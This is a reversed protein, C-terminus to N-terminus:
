QESRRGLLAEPEGGIVRLGERIGSVPAGALMGLGRGVKGMAVDLDDGALSYIGDMFQAIGPIASDPMSPSKEGTIARKLIRTVDEGILPISDTAQSFAWFAYRKAKEEPPEDDRPPRTIMAQLLTGSIIYAVAIGIAQKLQHAKVAAPLDYWINQYVVNLAQTFQFIAQVYPNKDRYVPALDVGRSTPQTMLIIDDAKEMAKQHDGKFEELAKNYIARWGIAVSCRDAWELGAMGLAEVNKAIKGLKTKANANKLAENILSFQRNKLVISLEETEKIYKAPNAMMKTAEVFLGAGAYPLAPWPSTVVQKLVSSVRFGLYAAGLNGRLSRVAEDQWKRVRMEGPNKIEAVYEKIYDVGRSGFVGKIQEQVTKDLYVADLEKGYQAYAIYHEQYEISKLWTGLLDMNTEGQNWPRITIRDKTFGNKPPRRTGPTRDLVDGAVYADIPENTVSKRLIPFYHEIVLMAQNTVDAVVQALRPATEQGDKEFVDDLLALDSDDLKAEIAAYIANFKLEAKAEIEQYAVAEGDAGSRAIERYKKKEDESFFNGYLLAQRSNEDRFGLALAMLDSKRLIVDSDNKGAQPITVLEEYWDKPDHGTSAIADLIAKQRETRKKMEARYLRNMKHWGFETNPGDVGGDMERLFRRANVFAYAFSFTKDKISDMLSTSYDPGEAKKYHKNARLREEIAVRKAENEQSREFEIQIQVERGVKKLTTIKQHAEEWMSLPIERRSTTTFKALWEPSVIQAVAPNTIANQVMREMQDNQADALLIDDGAEIAAEERASLKKGYNQQIINQIATIAKKYEINASDSPVKLTQEIVKKRYARLERLVKREADREAYEDQLKTREELKALYTQLDQSTKYDAAAALKPQLERMKAAAESRAKITRTDPARGAAHERDILEQARDKRRKAEEYQRNIEMWDRANVLKQRIRERRAELQKRQNETAAPVTGHEDLHTTIRKLTRNIQDETKKLAMRQEAITRVNADLSAEQEKIESELAKIKAKAAKRENEVKVIYEKTESDLSIDGTRIARSIREDRVKAARERRQSISMTAEFESDKIDAYKEKTATTAVGELGKDGMLKAYIGAYEEPNRAVVGYVSRMFALSTVRNKAGIALAAAVVPGEISSRIKAAEDRAAQWAEVEEQDSFRDLQTNEEQLVQDYIARMFTRLGAFNDSKLSVLWSELSKPAEKEPSTLADYQEKYWALKKEQPLDPIGWKEQDIFPAEFFEVIEDFSMGQDIAQKMEQVYGPKEPNEGQYLTRKRIEVASDEFMVYNWGKEGRGGSLFAVPYQIGDFGARYLFDSAAQPGAGQGIEDDFRDFWNFDNLTESLARYVDAGNITEGDDLLHHITNELMTGLDNEDDETKENDFMSSARRLAAVQDSYLPQDWRILTNRLPADFDFEEKKDSAYSPVLRVTGKGDEGFLFKRLAKYGAEAPHGRNAALLLGLAEKVIATTKQEAKQIKKQDTEDSDIIPLAYKKSKLLKDEYLWKRAWMPLAPANKVQPAMSADVLGALNKDILTGNVGELVATGDRLAETGLTVKKDGPSPSWRTNGNSPLLSTVGARKLYKKFAPEDDNFMEEKLYKYLGEGTNEYEMEELGTEAVNEIFGGMFQLIFKEEEDDGIEGKWFDWLDGAGLESEFKDRTWGEDIWRQYEKRLKEIDSDQVPKNWGEPQKTSKIEGPNDGRLSLDVNYIFRGGVFAIAGEDEASAIMDALAEVYALKTAATQDFGAEYKYKETTDQIAKDVAPLIIERHKQRKQEIHPADENFDAEDSSLMPVAMGLESIRRKVANILERTAEQVVPLNKGTFTGEDLDGVSELTEALFDVRGPNIDALMTRLLGEDGLRDAYQGKAVKMSETFYLGYGYIQQGEGTGVWATSFKEFGHGTGHKANRTEGQNLIDNPKMHRKIVIRRKTINQDAAGPSRPGDGAQPNSPAITPSGLPQRGRAKESEPLFATVLWPKRQGDQELDIIARYGNWTIWRRTPKSNRGYDPGLLGKTLINELNAIVSDTDEHVYLIHALGFGDHYNHKESGTYGWHITLPGIYPVNVANDYIGKQFKLAAQLVTGFKFKADIRDETWGESKRQDKDPTGSFLYQGHGVSTQMEETVPLAHVTASQKGGEEPNTTDITAETVQAGWKKGYKNAFDVLIKDYFGQMGEGGVKLDVDELYTYGNEQRGVGGIVKQTMEKGIMGEMSAPSVSDDRYVEEGNKGWVALRYLDEGRKVYGISDIQKSLDYREAQQDGTTWAVADYGGDAAMRLIRKFVFEHWTKSFPADPVRKAEDMTAPVQNGFPSTITKMESAYGYKRGDQHWDSQIEEVFLVRKGDATTRDNIRTHALVNPEDWHGSRYANKALERFIGPNTVNWGTGYTEEMAALREEQTKFSVWQRSEGDIEQRLKLMAMEAALRPNAYVARPYSDIVEGNRLVATEGNEDQGIEWNGFDGKTLMLYEIESPLTFLIERYNQGGPLVYRTFQPENANEPYMKEELAQWEAQEEPTLNQKVSLRDHRKREKETITSQIDQRRVEQIELKNAELFAKVEQPTKKEDTDLFEDLGTWKIEDGKVGAAQLTKLIQRGPMAGQIKEAVVDESKYKWVPPEPRFNTRELGTMEEQEGQYLIRADNPDWTGRNNTSKIQEPNFVVYSTGQLNSSDVSDDVNRIIMGDHGNAKAEKALKTLRIAEGPDGRFDVEMPNKLSLYAEVLDGPEDTDIVEGYERPYRYQEAVDPNDTFFVAGPVELANRPDLREVGISQSGHYVAKPKGDADRVKSKGFWRRFEPSQTKDPNEKWTKDMVWGAAKKTWGTAQKIDERSYGEGEMEKARELRSSAGQHYEKVEGQFIMLDNLNPTNPEDKDASLAPAKADVRPLIDKKVKETEASTEQSYKSLAEEPIGANYEQTEQDGLLKDFYGQIEPSLDVRAKKLGNYLDLVFQALKALIGEKGEPAKKFALYDELAYAVAEYYTRNEYKYEETWGEFDADWNGNQIGFAGEIEKLFAAVKENQRNAQAFWVVAHTMEHMLTSPNANPGIEIVTRLGNEFKKRYARGYSNETDTEYSGVVFPALSDRALDAPDMGFRQAFRQFVYTGAKIDEASWGPRQEQIVKTVRDMTAAEDIESYPRYLQLGAEVGRPNTRVMYDKLAQEGPTAPTWQIDWGAYNQAVKRITARAIAPNDVNDMGLITVTGASEGEGPEIDYTVANLLNGKADGAKMTYREGQIQETEQFRTGSPLPANAMSEFKETQAATMEVPSVPTPKVITKAEVSAKKAEQTGKLFLRMGGPIVGLGATGLFAGVYTDVLRKGVEKATTPTLSTGDLDNTLKKAKEEAVVAAAEQLAEQLANSNVDALWPGARGVTDGIFKLFHRQYIGQTTIKEATDVALDKAKKTVARQAAQTMGPIGKFFTDFEIAELVGAVTGYANAWQWAVKPNIREGTQPDTYSLMQYFQSGREMDRSSLATSLMGGLRSGIDTSIATSAITAGISTLGLLPISIQPFLAAAITPLVAGVAGGALRGAMNNDLGAVISPIFEFTRKLLEVPLARKIEEPLPMATRYQEIQQWLPDAEFNYDPGKKWLENANKAISTGIVAAKLTLQLSELWDKPQMSRRYLEQTIGEYNDYAQDVPIGYMQSALYAAKLRSETQLPDESAKIQARYTDTITKPIFLEPPAGPYLPERAFLEDDDDAKQFIGGLYDTASPAKQTLMKFIDSENWPM